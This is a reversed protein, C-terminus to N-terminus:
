LSAKCRDAWSCSQSRKKINRPIVDVTNLHEICVSPRMHSHDCLVVFHSGQLRHIDAQMRTGISAHQEVHIFRRLHTNTTYDVYLWFIIEEAMHQYYLRCVALLYDWWGDLLELNPNMKIKLAIKVITLQQNYNNWNKFIPCYMENSWVTQCKIM